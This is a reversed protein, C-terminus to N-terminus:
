RDEELIPIYDGRSRRQQQDQQAQSERGRGDGLPSGDGRQLDIQPTMGKQELASVLEPLNRSVALQADVTDLRFVLKVGQDPLRSLEVQAQGLTGLDIGLEVQTRGAVQHIEIGALVQQAVQRVLAQDAAPAPPAVEAPAGVPSALQAVPLSFSQVDGPLRETTPETAPDEALGPDATASRKGAAAGISADTPIGAAGGPVKGSSLGAAQALPDGHPAGTPPGSHPSAPLAAGRAALPGGQGPGGAAVANGEGPAGQGALSALSGQAGAGRRGTLAGQLANGGADGASGGGQGGVDGGAGAGGGGGRLSRRLTTNTQPKVADEAADQGELVRDFEGKEPAKDTERREAGGVPRTDAPGGVRTM